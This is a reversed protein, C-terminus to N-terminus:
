PVVDIAIPDLAPIDCVFLTIAIPVLAPADPEAPAIAIPELAPPVNWPDNAIAIPAVPPM